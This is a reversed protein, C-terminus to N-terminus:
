SDSRVESTSQNKLLPSNEPLKWSRGAVHVSGDIIKVGGLERGLTILETREEDTLYDNGHLSGSPRSPDGGADLYRQRGVAFLEKFREYKQKQVQISETM